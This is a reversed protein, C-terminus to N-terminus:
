KEHSEERYRTEREMGMGSAGSELIRDCVHSERRVTKSAFGGCGRVSVCFGNGLGCSKGGISSM